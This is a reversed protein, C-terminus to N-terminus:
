ALVTTLAEVIRRARADWTYADLRERANKTKDLSSDALAKEIGRALAEGSDPTVFVTSQEDLVEKISPLDSAVIPKGSAMYSFLKLPSTHRASVAERATNPLLLVDAAQQNDALETYPRAGLFLVSPHQERLDEVERGHGGIIVLRINKSLYSAAAYVTDLGKWGDLRGIYLAVKKDNPISLRTRSTATSEPNAFEALDIGDPAVAIRKSIVGQEVLDDKLLKTITIVKTARRVIPLFFANRAIGHLEICKNEIGVFPLLLIPDRTYVFAGHARSRQFILMFLFSALDVIYFLGGHRESTSLLDLAPVRVITFNREVAHYSFPDPSGEITTRKNPVMLTVEVGLRALAECTKMIQVGHARVTPLRLNAVYLLKM